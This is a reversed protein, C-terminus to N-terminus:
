CGFVVNRSVQGSRAVLSPRVANSSRPSASHELSIHFQPRRFRNVHTAAHLQHAEPCHADAVFPLLRSPHAPRAATIFAPSFNPKNASDLLIGTILFGSLVFFLNVGAWGQNAAALFLREGFEIRM